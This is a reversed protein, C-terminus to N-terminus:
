PKLLKYTYHEEHVNGEDRQVEKQFKLHYNLTIYKEPVGDYHKVERTAKSPLIKLPCADFNYSSIDAEAKDKYFDLNLVNANYTWSGFPVDCALSENHTDHVSKFCRHVLEVSVISMIHGNPFLIAPYKDNYHDGDNGKFPVIDPKWLLSHPLSLSDVGWKSEWSLRADRWSLVYWTKGFLYGHSDVDFCIPTLAFSVNGVNGNEDNPRVSPDYNKFISEKLKQIHDPQLVKESLSSGLLCSLTLAALIWM